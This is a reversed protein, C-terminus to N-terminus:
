TNAGPRQAGAGRPPVRHAQPPGASMALTNAGPRQAGTGGPPVHHAQPPGDRMALPM